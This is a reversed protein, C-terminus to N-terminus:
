QGVAAADAPRQGKMRAMRTARRPLQAAACSALLGRLAADIRPLSRLARAHLRRCEIELEGHLADLETARVRSRARGAADRVHEQTMQADHLDGLVEQFRKLQRTTAGMDSGLMDGALELTYRLKKTALRVAHLPDVAYMVGAHRLAEVCDAARQRVEIIVQRALLDPKVDELREALRAVRSDARTWDVRDLRRRASKLARDRSRECMEDLRLLTVSSCGTEAPMRRLVKRVVDMERVDALARTVRRISRTLSAGRRDGAGGAIALAARMRRSAVRVRHIATRDGEAARGFDHAIAAANRRLARSLTTAVHTTGHAM